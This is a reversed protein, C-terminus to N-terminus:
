MFLFSAMYIAAATIAIWKIKDILSSEQWYMIVRIKYLAWTAPVSEKMWFFLRKLMRWLYYLPLLLICVILYFVIIQTEHLETHFLHEILKDLTSEVWEFIIFLLEFFFHVLEFLLGMLVDPMTLIIAIGIIALGYQIVKRYDDSIM